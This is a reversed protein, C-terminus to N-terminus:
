SDMASASLVLSAPRKKRGRKRLFQPLIQTIFDARFADGPTMGASSRRYLYFSDRAFFLVAAFASEATKGKITQAIKMTLASAQKM